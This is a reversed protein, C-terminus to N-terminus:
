GDIKSCAYASCLMFWGYCFIAVLSTGILFQWDHPSTFFFKAIVFFGLITPLFIAVLFFLGVLFIAKLIDVM